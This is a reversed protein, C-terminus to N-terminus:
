QMVLSQCLDCELVSRPAALEHPLAPLGQGRLSPRLRLVADVPDRAAGARCPVSCLAILRSKGEKAYVESPQMRATPIDELPTM